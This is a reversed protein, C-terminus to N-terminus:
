GGAVSPESVAPSASPKRRRIGCVPPLESINLALHASFLGWTESHRFPEGCGAPFGFVSSSPGLYREIVEHVDERRAGGRKLVSFVHRPKPAYVKVGYRKVFAALRSQCVPSPPKGRPWRTSVVKVTSNLKSM